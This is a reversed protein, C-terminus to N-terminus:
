CPFKDLPVKRGNSYLLSKQAIFEEGSMGVPDFGLMELAAPNAMVPSGTKDYVIVAEALASFVQSMEVNMKDPMRAAQFRELGISAFSALESLLEEEQRSFRTKDPDWALLFGRTIKQRDQVRAFITACSAENERGAAPSKETNVTATELLRVKQRNELLQLFPRNELMESANRLASGLLGEPLNNSTRYKLVRPNKERIDPTRCFASVRCGTLMCASDLTKELLFDVSDAALITKSADILAHLKEPDQRPRSAGAQRGGAESLHFSLCSVAGNEDRHVMVRDFEPIKESIAKLLLDNGGSAQGTIGLIEGALRGLYLLNGEPDTVAALDGANQAVTDAIDRM